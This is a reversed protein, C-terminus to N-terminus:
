FKTLVNIFSVTEAKIIEFSSCVFMGVIGREYCNILGFTSYRINFIKYMISQQHLNVM